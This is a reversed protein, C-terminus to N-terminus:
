RGPGCASCDADTKCGGPCKAECKGEKTCTDSGLCHESNSVSCAACKGGLCVQHQPDCASCDIDTKCTITPEGASDTPCTKDEPACTGFSTCKEGTACGQGTAADCAVCRTNPVDCKTRGFSCGDCQADSTCNNLLCVGTAAGGAGAGGPGGDSGASGSTGGSGGGPGPPGKGGGGGGCGSFMFAVACILTAASASTLFFRLTKM